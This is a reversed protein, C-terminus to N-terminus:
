RAIALILAGAIVVGACFAIISILGLWYGAKTMGEGARDMGGMQIHKLDTKGMVFALIAFIPVMWGLIGFALLMGGRHPRVQLHGHGDADHTVPVAGPGLAATFGAHRHPPKIPGSPKRRQSASKPLRASARKTPHPHTLGSM